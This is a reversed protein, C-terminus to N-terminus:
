ANRKVERIWDMFAQETCITRPIDIGRRNMEICLKTISPVSLGIQQLEDAHSFVEQPTDLLFASGQELVLVKTAHNAIDDMSHSIMIITCGSDRRLSELLDLIETRGIPDLGAMPEDLVLYKPHMSLVGAIAARRREGGSLEFPSRDAFRDYDLGVLRMANAVRSEIEDEPLKMNRPGFAIDEKVTDAFLQYEPYQFVMGVLERVKRREAKEFVDHGDVLVMNKEATLLGNLHQVFTSKGSGTHGIIGLFEGEEITFDLDKLTPALRKGGETYAFTLHHIVISM